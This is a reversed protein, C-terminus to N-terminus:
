SLTATAAMQEMLDLLEDMQSPPGFGTLLFVQNQVQIALLVEENFDEQAEGLLRMRAADQGTIDSTDIEVRGALDEERGILHAEILEEPTEDGRLQTVVIAASDDDLSRFDAEELTEERLEDASIFIVSDDGEEIATWNEPYQITLEEGLYRDGLVYFTAEATADAEEPDDGLDGFIAIAGIIIVLLALVALFILLSRSYGRPPQDEPPRQNLDPETDQETAAPPRSVNDPNRPVNTQLYTSLQM